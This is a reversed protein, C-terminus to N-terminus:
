SDNRQPVVLVSCGAHNLVAESTSGLIMSAFTRKHQSGIVALDIKEAHIASLIESAPEGEAVLTRCQNLPPGMAGVFEQMSSRCAQLDEEHEKAWAQVMAEVEPGRSQQELWEPVRGAFISEVVSVTAFQADGPWTFKELLEAATKGLEPNECALLVNLTTRPEGDPKRAVWVPIKSHHVIARSVSGLLLRELASVGRAGVAIVDASWAEAEQVVGQRPDRTGVITKTRQRLADPLRKRAEDFVADAFGQQTRALINADPHQKRMRIEPPACYLAVEDTEGGLVRGIQDVAAFSGASGDVAILVKM